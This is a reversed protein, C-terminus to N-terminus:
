KAMEKKLLRMTDECLKQFVERSKITTSVKIQNELGKFIFGTDKTNLARMISIASNEPNHVLTMMRESMRNFVRNMTLVSSNIIGPDALNVAVRRTRMTTSLYISFLTLALKSQAYVALPVFRSVSSVAPFEFPLTVFNRTHSTTLVIHGDPVVMPEIMLSLMAAGLFNVQVMREYGDASMERNRTLVAANNVLAAVQRNLQKFARVFERVGEFSGMDLHLCTIDANGTSEKLENAFAIGRETHRCALVLPHGQEALQRSVVSGMAGAAGTIIYVPAMQSAPTNTQNNNAM